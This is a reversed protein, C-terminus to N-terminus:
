TLVLRNYDNIISPKDNESIQLSGLTSVIKVANNDNNWRFCYMNASEWLSVEDKDADKYKVKIPFM